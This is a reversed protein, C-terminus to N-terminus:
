SAHRCLELFKQMTQEPDLTNPREYDCSPCKEDAQEGRDICWLRSYECIPCIIQPEFYSDLRYFFWEKGFKIEGDTTTQNQVRQDLYEAFWQGVKKSQKEHDVKRDIMDDVDMMHAKVCTRLEALSVLAEYGAYCLGVFDKRHLAEEESFRQTQWFLEQGAIWEMQQREMIGRVQFSGRLRREAPDALSCRFQRRLDIYSAPYQIIRLKKPPAPADRFDVLNWGEFYKVTGDEIDLHIDTRASPFILANAGIERLWSGIADTIPSGGRPHYTLLLLLAYFNMEPCKGCNHEGEPSGAYTIFETRDSIIQAVTKDDNLGRTKAASIDDIDILLQRQAVRLIDVVNEADGVDEHYIYCATSIGSFVRKAFWEQVHPLRLDITREISVHEVRLPFFVTFDDDLHIRAGQQGRDTKKLETYFPSTIGRRSHFTVGIAHRPFEAETYRSQNALRPGVLRPDSYDWISIDGSTKPDVYAWLENELTGGDNGTEDMCVAYYRSAPLDPGGAFRRFPFAPETVVLQGRHFARTGAEVQESTNAAEFFRAFTIKLAGAQEDDLDIPRMSKLWGDFRTFPANESLDQMIIAEDGSTKDTHIFQDESVPSREKQEPSRSSGIIDNSQGTIGSEEGEGLQLRMRMLAAAESAHAHGLSAAKEFFQRSKWLDGEIQLVVGMSFLAQSNNPELRLCELLNTKAEALRGLKAQNWGCIGYAFANSPDLEIAKSFAAVAEEPQRLAHYAHGRHLESEATIHGLRRAEDFDRIAAEYDGQQFYTYARRSYISGGKPFHLIADNYAAISGEYDGMLRCANGRNIRPLVLNPALELARDYDTLALEFAGQKEFAVGRNSYTQADQPDIALARGFDDIAEAYEERSLYLNGRNFYSLASDPKLEIARGYDALAASYLRLESYISGRNLFASVDQPNSDILRTYYEIKATLDDRSM